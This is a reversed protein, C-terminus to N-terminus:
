LLNLKEITLYGDYDYNHICILDTIKEKIKNDVQCIFVMENPTGVCGVSLHRKRGLDYIVSGMVTYHPLEKFEINLLDDKILMNNLIINTINQQVM